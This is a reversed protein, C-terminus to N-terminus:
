EPVSGTARTISSPSSWRRISSSASSTQVSIRLAMPPSACHAMSAEDHVHIVDGGHALRAQALLGVRDGGLLEPLMTRVDRKARELRTPQADRALMSRSTDLCFIVDLGRREVQLTEEGLRPDMWTVLLLAALVTGLTARGARSPAREALEAGYAAIGRRALM